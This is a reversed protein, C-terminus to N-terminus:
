NNEGKLEQKFKKVRDNKIKSILLANQGVDIVVCAYIFSNIKAM